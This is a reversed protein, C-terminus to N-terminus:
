ISRGIVHGSALTTVPHGTPSLHTVSERSRVVWSDTKPNFGHSMADKLAAGFTFGSESTAEIVDNIGMRRWSWAARHRQFEWHRARGELKGSMSALLTFTLWFH